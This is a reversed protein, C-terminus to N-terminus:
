IDQFLSTSCNGWVAICYTVGPIVTKYYLEELVKKPLYRMRKLAGVKKSFMKCANKIQISWNLKNDIKPGLYDARTVFSIYNEGFHIPRLPGIFPTKRLIMAESKGPHVSLKNRISM